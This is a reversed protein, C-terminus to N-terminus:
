YETCFWGVKEPFPLFFRPCGAGRSGEDDGPRPQPTAGAGWERATENTRRWSCHFPAHIHNSVRACWGEVTRLIGKLAGIGRTDMFEALCAFLCTESGRMFVTFLNGNDQNVVLM